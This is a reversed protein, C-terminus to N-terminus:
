SQELSEQERELADAKKEHAQAEARAKTEDTEAEGKTQQAEGEAQLNDDDVADGAKEKIKGKITEGIGM